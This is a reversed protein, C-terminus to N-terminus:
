VEQRPGCLGPLACGDLGHFTPDYYNKKLVDHVKSLMIESQEQQRPEIKQQQTRAGLGIGVGLVIGIAILYVAARKMVKM